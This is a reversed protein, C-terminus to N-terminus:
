LMGALDTEVMENKPENPVYPQFCVSPFKCRSDILASRGRYKQDPLSLDLDSRMAVYLFGPMNRDSDPVEAPRTAPLAPLGMAASHLV